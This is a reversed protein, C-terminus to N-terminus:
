EVAKAARELAQRLLERVFPKQVYDIVGLQKSNEVIGIEGVGTVMIVATKSWKDRIREALWLGDRGPMVIDILAIAAPEAFMLELADKANSATRVRYGWGALQRRLINRVPEEDDVVLVYSM